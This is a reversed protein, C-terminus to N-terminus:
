FYLYVGDIINGINFM